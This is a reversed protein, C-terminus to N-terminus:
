SVTFLKTKPCHQKMFSGENMLINILIFVKECYWFLNILVMIPFILHMRSNSRNKMLRTQIIKIVLYVSINILNDNVSEYKSFSNDKCKVKDAREALSDALNSLLSVM